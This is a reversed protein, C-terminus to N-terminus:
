VSWVWHGRLENELGLDCCVEIETQPKSGDYYNLDDTRCRFRLTYLGDSYALIELAMNELNQHEYYYFNNFFSGDEGWENEIADSYEPISFQHGALADPIYEPRTLIELAPETEPYTDELPESTLKQATVWFNVHSAGNRRFISFSGDSIEWVETGNFRQLTLTGIKKM